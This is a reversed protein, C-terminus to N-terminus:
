ELNQVQERFQDVVAKLELGIKSLSADNAKACLTNAERNFEQALFDLKRGVAGGAKLLERAAAVHANLRDIEERVDVKAALLVAEQYLRDSDFKVGTELLAQVQEALKARIAEPQRAPAAEAAAALKAIDDIRATLIQELAEGERRRAVVLDALARDFGEIVAKEAARREDESEEAEVIEMVGKLGLIGDLGPAEADVRRAVSRMTELVASLVEENVRVAATAGERKVELTASVAGRALSRAAAARVPPEVADWGPPLRLRLDLGKSNVSKIEWAWAYAGAAGHARAFGTMSALSM